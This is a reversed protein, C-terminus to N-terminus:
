SCVAILWHLLLLCSWFGCCTLLLRFFCFGLLGFWDLDFGFAFCVLEFGCVRVCIGLIWFCAVTLGLDFM